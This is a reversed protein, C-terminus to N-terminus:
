IITLCELCLVAPRFICYLLVSFMDTDVFHYQVMEYLPHVTCSYLFLDSGVSHYQVTVYLPHVTCSYLFRILTWLITSFWKM